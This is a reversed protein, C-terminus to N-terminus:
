VEQKIVIRELDELRLAVVGGRVLFASPDGLPSKGICEVRAGGVIGMNMLKNRVGEQRPLSVIQGVDGVGLQSLRKLDSM